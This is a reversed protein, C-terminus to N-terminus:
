AGKLYDILMWVCSIVFGVSGTAMFMGSLIHTVVHSKMQGKGMKDMDFMDGFNIGLIIGALVWVVISIVMLIGSTMKKEGEVQIQEGM